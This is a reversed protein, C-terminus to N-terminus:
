TKQQLRDDHHKTKHWHDGFKCKYARLKVVGYPLGGRRISEECEEKTAFRRKCLCGRDQERMPNFKGMFFSHYKKSDSSNRKTM